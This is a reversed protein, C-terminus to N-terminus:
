ALIQFMRAQTLMSKRSQTKWLKEIEKLSLNVSEFSAEDMAALKVASHLLLSSEVELGQRIRKACKLTEEFLLLVHELNEEDDCITALNQIKSSNANILTQLAFEAKEKNALVWFPVRMDGDFAQAEINALEESVGFEQLMQSSKELNKPPLKLVISRSLITQLLGDQSKALLINVCGKRGEELMKLLANQAEITMTECNSLINFRYNASYNSEVSDQQVQRVLPIGFKHNGPSYVKVDPHTQASIMRCSQCNNCFNIGQGCNVAKAFALAIELGGREQLGIFLYSSAIRKSSIHAKIRRLFSENLGIDSFSM